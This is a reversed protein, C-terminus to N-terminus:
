SVNYYGDQFSIGQQFKEIQEKHCSVLEKDDTKIGMSELSFLHELGNDVESDTM